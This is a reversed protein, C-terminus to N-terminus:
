GGAVNVGEVLIGPTYMNETSEVEKSVGLLKCGLWEYINGGLVVGKVPYKVGGNEVYLAHTVTAQVGGNVPNSMWYGIVGYVVLGRRVSSFLEDFVSTSRSELVFNTFGPYTASSPTRRFGNGTSVVGDRRATYHNYLIKKFVGKEVVAKRNTSYGEDDFSRSGYGWKIVPNDLVDIDSSLVNEGLRNKLPSRNEQINLASFAPALSSEIIWGTVRPSLLVQYLGSELGRAKIFLTSYEGARSAERYVAEEDLRRSTVIAPYTSEDGGRSTKVDYYVLFKTFKDSIRDGYSNAIYVDYINVALGGRTVIAEDVGRRRASEISADVANKMVELLESHSMTELRKDYVSVGVGRSYGRSFGSWYRDEPSCKTISLVKDVVSDLSELSLEESGYSGVRKGIAVRVGYSGAVRDIVRKVVNNSVDVEISRGLVGYFEVESVGREMLKSILRDAISYMDAM